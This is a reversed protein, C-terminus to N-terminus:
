VNQGEISYGNDKILQDAISKAQPMSLHKYHESPQGYLICQMLLYTEISVVQSTTARMVDERTPTITKFEDSKKTKSM